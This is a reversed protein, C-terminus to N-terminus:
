WSDFFRNIPSSTREPLQEPDQYESTMIGIYPLAWFGASSPNGKGKKLMKGRKGKGGKKGQGPNWYYTSGKINGEMDIEELKKQATEAGKEMIEELLKSVSEDAPAYVQTAYNVANSTGMGVDYRAGTIRNKSGAATARQEMFARKANMTHVRAQAQSMTGARVELATTASYGPAIFTNEEGKPANRRFELVKEGSKYQLMTTFAYLSMGGSGAIDGVRHAQLYDNGVKDGWTNLMHAIYKAATDNYAVGINDSTSREALRIALSDFIDQKSARGGGKGAAADRYDKAYDIFEKMNTVKQGTIVELSAKMHRILPNYETDISKIFMKEVAQRLVELEGKKTGKTAMIAKVLEPPLETIGHGAKEPDVLPMETVDMVKEIVAKTKSANWRVKVLDRENAMSGKVKEDLLGKLRDDKLAESYPVYEYLIGSGPPFEYEMGIEESAAVYRAAMENEILSEAKTIANDFMRNATAKATKVLNHDTRNYINMFPPTKDGFSDAYKALVDDRRVGHM